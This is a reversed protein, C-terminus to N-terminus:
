VGLLALVRENSPLAPVINRIEAPTLWRVEAIERVDPRIEGGIRGVRWIALIHRSDPVQVSGVRDLPEVLLGLEEAIERVIAVRATEGAEIHGGPFCWTGGKPVGDARRIMLFADAQALVGIVGRRVRASQM